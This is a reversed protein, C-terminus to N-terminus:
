PTSVFELNIKEILTGFPHRKQTTSKATWDVTWIGGDRFALEFFVHTKQDSLFPPDYDDGYGSGANYTGTQKTVRGVIKAFQRDYEPVHTTFVKRKNGGFRLTNKNYARALLDLVDGSDKHTLFPFGACLMQEPTYGHLVNIADNMKLRASEVTEEYGVRDLVDGKLVRVIDGIKM